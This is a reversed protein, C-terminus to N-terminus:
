RCTDRLYAGRALWSLVATWVILVVWAKPPWAQGTFASHAAQTLWYSPLLQALQNLLDSISEGASLGVDALSTARDLSSKVAGLAGVHGCTIM